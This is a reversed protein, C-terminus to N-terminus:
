AMPVPGTTVMLTPLKPEGRLPVLHRDNEPLEVRTHLLTLRVPRGSRPRQGPSRSGRWAPNGGSAYWMMSTITCATAEPSGAPGSCRPWQRGRRAALVLAAALQDLEEAHGAGDARWHRMVDLPLLEELVGALVDLGQARHERAGPLKRQRLPTLVPRHLVDFSRPTPISTCISDWAALSAASVAQAHAGAYGPQGAVSTVDTSRTARRVPQIIGRGRRRLDQAIRVSFASSTSSSLPSVRRSALYLRVRLWTCRTSARSDGSAGAPRASTRCSLSYPPERVRGFEALHQRLMDVAHQVAGVHEVAGAVGARALLRQRESVCGPAHCGGGLLVGRDFSDPSAAAVVGQGSQVRIM